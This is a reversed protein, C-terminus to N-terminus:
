IDERVLQLYYHRVKLDARIARDFMDQTGPSMDQEETFCWVDTPQGEDLMQQNRIPGAAKGHTNWNAPFRLNVLGLDRAAAFGLSDAGPAAGDIVVDIPGHALQEILADKIYDGRTWSRSGCILLRM